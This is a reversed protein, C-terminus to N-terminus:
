AKLARAVHDVLAPVADKAVACLGLRLGGDVPVVYVGEGRLRAAVGYADKAFVTVFFGGDYRPHRLGAPRSAANFAAVREELVRIQAAREARVSASMAPDLICRAVASMGGRNCNSWTGRCAYTLANDVDKREEADPVLALLAGVRLGYGTFGKSASWAVLVQVRDAIPELARWWRGTDDHPDFHAYAADLLLAVPAREGHRALVEAVRRWEEETMTYGTPKHCPDNLVVLARGQRALQAGLARDLADADFGGDPGYEEFFSIAREQEDAITEYPNWHFFTTLLAQGHGLYTAIANRVAGSGGPTAVAVAQRALDARAGFVDKRVAELFGPMGPIFAYAAWDPQPVERVAKAVTPLVVLSGDDHLRM